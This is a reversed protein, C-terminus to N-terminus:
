LAAGQDKCHERVASPKASGWSGGVRLWGVYVLAARRGRGARAGIGNGALSNRM